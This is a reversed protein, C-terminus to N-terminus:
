QPVARRQQQGNPGTRYVWKMGAPPQDQQGGGQNAGPAAGAAPANRPAAAPAGQTEQVHQKALQDLRGLFQNDEPTLPKGNARKSTIDRVRQNMINQQEKSFRDTFAKDQLYQLHRDKQQLTNANLKEKSEIGAQQRQAKGEETQTTRANRGEERTLAAAGKSRETETKEDQARLTEVYKGREKGQSAWPMARQARAEPSNYRPNKPDDYWMPKGAPGAGAAKVDSAMEATPNRGGAIQQGPSTSINTASLFGRPQGPTKSVDEVNKDLGREIVHDWQGARMSLMERFQDATIDKTKTTGDPLLMAIRFGNQTPTAYTETGNPMFTHAQNFLKAAMDPRNNDLAAHAKALESSYHQNYNQILRAGSTPHQGAADKAAQERVQSPTPSVEGKARLKAEAEAERKQVEEEPAAGAGNVYARLAKKLGGEQPTAGRAAEEPTARINENYFKKIARGATEGVGAGKSLPKDPEGVGTDMAGTESTDRPSVNPVPMGTMPDVEQDPTINTGKLPEGAIMHEGGATPDDTVVEGSAVRDAPAKDEPAEASPAGTDGKVGTEPNIGYLSRTYDVLEQLWNRAGKKSAEDEPLPMSSGDDVAQAQDGGSTAGIDQLGAQSSLDQGSQTQDTPRDAQDVLEDDYGDAM